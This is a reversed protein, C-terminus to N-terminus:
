YFSPFITRYDDQIYRAFSHTDTKRSRLYEHAIAEPTWSFDKEGILTLAMLSNHSLLADYAIVSNGVQKEDWEYYLIARQEQYVMVLQLLGIDGPGIANPHIYIESPTGYAKLVYSVKLINTRLDTSVWLVQGSYGRNDPHINGEYSDNTSQFKYFWNKYQDSGGEGRYM